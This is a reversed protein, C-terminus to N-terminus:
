EQNINEAIKFNECIITFMNSLKQFLSGTNGLIVWKWQLPGSIIFFILECFIDFDKILFFVIQYQRSHDIAFLMLFSVDVM